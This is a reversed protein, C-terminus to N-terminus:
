KKPEIEKTPAPKLMSYRMIELYETDSLSAGKPMGKSGKTARHLELQTMVKDINEQTDLFVGGKFLAVGSFKGGVGETHCSACKTGMVLQGPHPPKLADRLPLPGSGGGGELLRQLIAEYKLERASDRAERAEERALLLKVIELTEPSSGYSAYYLPTAVPAYYSVAPAYTPAVYTSAVYPVHCSASRARINSGEAIVFAALLVIVAGVYKM